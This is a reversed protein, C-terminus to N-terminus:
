TAQWSSTSYFGSSNRELIVVRIPFSPLTIKRPVLWGVRKKMFNECSESVDRSIEAFYVSNRYYDPIQVSKGSKQLLLPCDPFILFNLSCSFGSVAEMLQWCIVSGATDLLVSKASPSPPACRSISPLEPLNDCMIM